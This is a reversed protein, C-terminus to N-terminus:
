KNYATFKDKSTGCLECSEPLKKTEYTLGCKPCVSYSVPLTNVKKADLATKATTYLDLHRKEVEMNYQFRKSADDAGEADADKIFGPYMTTTEYKEGDMADQLNEATTKVTFKPTITDPTGGMGKITETLNGVHVKEAASASEFLIAIPLLKEERAKQAYAAYKASATTEGRLAAQLDTMAKSTVVKTTDTKPEEKKQEGGCSTFFVGAALALVPLLKLM